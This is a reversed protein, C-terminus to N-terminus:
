LITLVQQGGGECELNCRVFFHVDNLNHWEGWHPCHLCQEKSKVPRRPANHNPHWEAM